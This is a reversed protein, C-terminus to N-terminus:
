LGKIFAIGSASLNIAHFSNLGAAGSFAKQRRSVDYMTYKTEYQIELTHSLLTKPHHIKAWVLFFLMVIYSWWQNPIAKSIRRRRIDAETVGVVNLGFLGGGGGLLTQACVNRYNRAFM